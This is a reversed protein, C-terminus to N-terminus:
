RRESFSGRGFKRINLLLSKIHHFFDSYTVHTLLENLYLLCTLRAQDVPLWQNPQHNTTPAAMQGLACLQLNNSLHVKADPRTPFSM